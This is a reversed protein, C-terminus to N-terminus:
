RPPTVTVKEIRTFAFLFNPHTMRGDETLNIAHKLRGSFRVTTGPKMKALSSFVPSSQPILTHAQYDSLENNWTQVWLVGPILNIKVYAYGHNTTGMAELTGTWGDINRPNGKLKTFANFRATVMASKLLENEGTPYKAAYDKITRMFDVQFAPPQGPLQQAFLSGAIIALGALAFVSHAKITM